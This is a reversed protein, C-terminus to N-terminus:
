GLTLAVMTAAVIQRRGISPAPLPRRLTQHSAEGLDHMSCRKTAGESATYMTSSAVDANVSGACVGMAYNTTAVPPENFRARQSHEEASSETSLASVVM